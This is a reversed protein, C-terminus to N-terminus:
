AVQRDDDVGAVGGAPAVEDLRQRQGRGGDAGVADDDLHVGLGVLRDAVPRLRQAGVAEGGVGRLDLLRRGARRRPLRSGRTLTPAQDDRDDADAQDAPRDAQGRARPEARM